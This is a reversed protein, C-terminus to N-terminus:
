GTVTHQTFSTARDTPHHSLHQVSTHGRHRYVRHSGAALPVEAGPFVIGLDLVALCLRSGTSVNFTRYDLEPSSWGAAMGLMLEM